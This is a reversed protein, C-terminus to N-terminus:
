VGAIMESLERRVFQGEIGSTRRRDQERRNTLLSFPMFLRRSAIITIPLKAFNLGHTKCFDPIKV